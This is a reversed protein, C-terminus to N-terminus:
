RSYRELLGNVFDAFEKSFEVGEHTLNIQNNVRSTDARDRQLLRPISEGAKTKTNGDLLDIQRSIAAATVGGVEKVLDFQLEGPNKMAAFLTTTAALSLQGGGGTSTRVKQLLDFM